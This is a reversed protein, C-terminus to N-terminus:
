RGQANHGKINKIVCVKWSVNTLILLNGTLKTENIWGLLKAPWSEMFFYIYSEKCKKIWFVFISHWFYQCTFILSIDCFSWTAKYCIFLSFPIYDEKGLWPLSLTPSWLWFHWGQIKCHWPFKWWSKKFLKKFGHLCEEHTAGILLLHILFFNTIQLDLDWSLVM